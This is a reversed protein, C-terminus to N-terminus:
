CGLPLIELRRDPKRRRDDKDAASRCFATRREEPSISSCTRTIFSTLPRTRFHFEQPFDLLIIELNVVQFLSSRHDSIPGSAVLRRTTSSDSETQLATRQLGGEM